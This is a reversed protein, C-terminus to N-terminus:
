DALGILLFALSGEGLDISFRLDPSVSLGGLLPRADGGKLLVLERRKALYEPEAFWSSAKLARDFSFWNDEDIRFLNLAMAYSAVLGSRYRDCYAGGIAGALSDPWGLGRARAALEARLAEDDEVLRGIGGAPMWGQFDLRFNEGLLGSRYSELLSDCSFREM